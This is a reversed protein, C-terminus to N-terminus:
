GMLARVGKPSLRRMKEMARRKRKMEPLLRIIDWYALCLFPEFLLAYVFLKLEYFLIFPLHLLISSLDDDKIITLYRNKHSHRRIFRPVSSRGGGAKWGRGHTAVADPRYLTKWGLLNARWALDVDEKYAFFSEDFFEGDAALEDLMTRRYLAAAGCAGFVRAPADYSGDDRTDRGRDIAKRDRRMVLGASDVTVGDPRVLKPAAAGADPDEDFAKSLAGVFGPAFSIDPNVLLVFGGASARIGQNAAAAFGLNSANEILRVSPYKTKVLTTTGDSSANDM